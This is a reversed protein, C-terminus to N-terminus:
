PPKGRALVPLVLQLLMAQVREPPLSTQVGQVASPDAAPPAATPAAQQQGQQPQQQQGQQLQEEQPAGLALEISSGNERGAGAVSAPSPASPLRGQSPPVGGAATEQRGQQWAFPAQGTAQWAAPLLWQMNPQQAQPAQQPLRQQQLQEEFQQPRGPQTGRGALSLSVSDAQQSPPRHSPPHLPPRGAGVRSAPRAAAGPTPARTPKAEARRKNRGESQDILEQTVEEGSFRAPRKTSRHSRHPREASAASARGSAAPIPQQPQPWMIARRQQRPLPPHAHCGVAPPELWSEQLPPTPAEGPLVLQLRLLTGLRQAAVGVTDGGQGIPPGLGCQMLALDAEIDEPGLRQQLQEWVVGIDAHTERYFVSM